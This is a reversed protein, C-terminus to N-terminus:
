SSGPLPSSGAFPGPLGPHWGDEEPRWPPAGRLIVPCPGTHLDVSEGHDPVCGPQSPPQHLRESRVPIGMEREVLEIPLQLSIEIDLASEEELRAGVVTERLAVAVPEFREAVPTADEDLAHGLQRPFARLVARARLDKMGRQHCVVGGRLHRHLRCMQHREDRAGEAGLGGIPTM